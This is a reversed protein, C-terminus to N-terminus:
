NKFSLPSSRPRAMCMCRCSIKSEMCLIHPLPFHAVKNVAAVDELGNLHYVLLMQVHAGDGHAQAKQVAGIGIYVSAAPLYVVLYAARCLVQHLGALVYLPFEANGYDVLANGHRGYGDHGSAAAALVQGGYGQGQVSGGLFHAHVEDAAKGGQHLLAGRRPSSLSMAEMGSASAPVSRTQELTLTPEVRAPM